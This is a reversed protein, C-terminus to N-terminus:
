YEDDADEDADDEAALRRRGRRASLALAVAAAAGGVIGGTVLGAATSSDTSVADSLGVDILPAGTFMHFSLAAIWAAAVALGALTALRRRRPAIKSYVRNMDLGASRCYWSYAGSPILAAVIVIGSWMGVGIVALAVGILQITFISVVMAVTGARLAIDREREDGMSPDAIGALRDATTTFRRPTHTTM